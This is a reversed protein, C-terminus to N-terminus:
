PHDNRRLHWDEIEIDGPVAVWPRERASTPNAEAAVQAAIRGVALFRRPAPVEPLVQRVVGALSDPAAALAARVREELEAPELDIAVEELPVERDRKPRVVAPRDVRGELERLLRISAASAVVLAFPRESWGALQNRIRESLARSPDLRVIDRLFRHVYQYYESWACQRASGWAAVRDVQETVRQVAEEAEVAGFTTALQEVDQLLGQMQNTDHLLVANLEALTSTTDDLLGQCREVADFWEAQLLEGVRRQVEEQQADLGRQRREIGAVLDAVTVRLPAVVLARWDEGSTAKRAATKLEALSALLTKTLLTLSERTLADDRMYFEVIASALSTMAYEGARVVGAGDVRSLLRQDRLRQVAHTARKRPNDADPEVVECVQEFVDLLAEEDFGTLAGDNARTYLAVLFCLDVTKLELSAGDRHLSGILRFSDVPV